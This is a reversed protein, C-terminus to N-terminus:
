MVVMAAVAALRWQQWPPPTLSWCCGGCMAWCSSLQCRPVPAAAAATILAAADVAAAAPPPLLCGCTHSVWPSMLHQLSALLQVWWSSTADCCAAEWVWLGGSIKYTPLM